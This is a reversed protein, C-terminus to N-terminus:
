KMANVLAKAASNIIADSTVTAGTIVDVGEFGQSTVIQRATPEAMVLYSFTEWHQTVKVSEINGGNVVVRITLPGGYGRTSATYSGDPVRKLDLKKLLRTAELNADAKVKGDTGHRSMPRTYSDPLALVKEYYTTAQDYRGAGRCVEAALLYNESQSNFMGGRFDMRGMGSNGASGSEIMELAKDVEGIKAWLKILDKNNRSYSVDARSLLEAATARSGLEFYCRAMKLSDTSGGREAYKQWWFAARTYDDFLEYFMDGLTNLSRKLKEKDDKHLIMLHNVLKIGQKHRSPNPYVVRVLYEDVTTQSNREWGFGRGWREEPFGRGGRGGRFGRGEWERPFGRGGREGQFGRRGRGEFEFRGEMFGERVPWNMDLTEPYNLEVSNWWEPAISGAQKIYADIEAKSKEARAESKPGTGATILGVGLLVM